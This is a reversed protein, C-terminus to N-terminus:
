WIKERKDVVFVSKIFFRNFSQLIVFFTSYYGKCYM